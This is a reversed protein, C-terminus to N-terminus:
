VTVISPEGQTQTFVCSAVYYQGPEARDGVPVQVAGYLMEGDPTLLCVYPVDAQAIARLTDFARVGAGDPPLSTTVHENRVYVIVSFPWRVGRDELPQFAAQFDRNHLRMFVTEGASLFEYQQRPGVLVYGTSLGPSSNSVFLLVGSSASPTITGTLTTWESTAGDSRMVRVRYKSAVGRPAEYDDFDSDSEDTIYAIPLYTTGGDISREVEYRVFSTTLSSSTWNLHVYSMSGPDCESGGNDPLEVSLLSATFGALATPVSGLTVILDVDPDPTGSVYAQDTTGGYSVNGTLSHSMDQDLGLVLWPATSAASSSFQVYYTTSTALTAATGLEVLVSYITYTVGSLVFTGVRTAKATDSLDAYTLTGNGGFQVNDSLRYVGITLAASPETAVGVFATVRKYAQASAANVGQRMTVGNSVTYGVLDHYPQSDSSHASGSTGLVQALAATTPGAYSTVRGSQDALEVTYLDGQEHPNAVGSDLRALQPTFTPLVSFPDELRRTILAYTKGTTKAWNDSNLPTKFQIPANTQLGSPPVTLKSSIGVAARNEAVVGVKMTLRSMACAYRLSIGINRSTNSDLNVIEPQLWLGENYPDFYFYPSQYTRWRYDQPPSIRWMRGLETTNNWWELDVHPQQWSWDFGKCRLEFRVYLIRLTNSIAATNFQFRARSTSGVNSNILYETSEPPGSDDTDDIVAYINSTSVFDSKTVGSNAKTENPVYTQEVVSSLEVVPSSALDYVDTWLRGYGSSPGTWLTPLYLSDITETASSVVRSAAVKTAADLLVVGETTVPWELGITNPASPNFSM